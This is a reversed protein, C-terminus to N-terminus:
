VFNNRQLSVLTQAACLVTDNTLHPLAGHGGHGHIKVHIEDASAMIMGPLFAMTGTPFDISTHQAIILETIVEYLM